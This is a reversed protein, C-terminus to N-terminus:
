RIELHQIVGGQHATVALILTIMIVGLIYTWRLVNLVRSNQLLPVRKQVWPILALALIALLSSLIMAILATDEHTHILDKNFNPLEKLVDEAEEGTLYAATTSAFILISLWVGFLFVQTQKGLVGWLLALAVLPYGIVPLHNLLLHIQAGNMNM